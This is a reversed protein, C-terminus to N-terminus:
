DAAEAAAEEAAEWEAYAAELEEKLRRYTRACEQAKEPVRYNEELAMRREQEEVRKEIEAM